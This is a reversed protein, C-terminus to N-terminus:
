IWTGIRQVGVKTGVNRGSTQSERFSEGFIRWSKPGPWELKSQLQLAMKPDPVTSPRASVQWSRLTDGHHWWSRCFVCPKDHNKCRRHFCSPKLATKPSPLRFGWLMMFCSLVHRFGCRSVNLITSKVMGTWQEDVALIIQRKDKKKNTKIHKKYTKIRQKDHESAEMFFRAMRAFLKWTWCPSIPSPSPLYLFRPCPMPMAGRIWKGDIKWHWDMQWSQVNWSFLQFYIFKENGCQINTKYWRIDINRMGHWEWM